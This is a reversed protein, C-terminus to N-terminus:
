VFILRSGDHVGQEFLPIAGELMTGAPDQYLSFSGALDEEGEGIKCRLLQLVEETLRAPTNNEETQIDYSRDLAPVFVEIIM